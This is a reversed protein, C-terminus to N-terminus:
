RDDARGTTKRLEGSQEYIWRDMCEGLVNLLVQHHSQPDFFQLFILRSASLTCPACVFCKSWKICWIHYYKQYFQSSFTYVSIKENHQRASHCMLQFLISIQMSKSRGQWKGYISPNPCKIYWILACCFLNLSFLHNIDNQWGHSTLSPTMGPWTLITVHLLNDVHGHEMNM